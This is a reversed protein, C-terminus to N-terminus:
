SSSFSLSVREKTSITPRGSKQVRHLRGPAFSLNKITKFLKIDVFELLEDGTMGEPDVAWNCWRLNDPLPSRYEDEMIEYEKERDDFIKLFLMWALQGIRQADGDVGADKRMIDQISKITTSINM